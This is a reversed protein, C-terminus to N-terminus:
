NREIMKMFANLLYFSVIMQGIMILMIILIKIIKRITKKIIQGQIRCRIVVVIKSDIILLGYAGEEQVEVASRHLGLNGEQGKDIRIHCIM